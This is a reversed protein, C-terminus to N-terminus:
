VVNGRQACPCPARAVPIGVAVAAVEAERHRAIVPHAATGVAHLQLGVVPVADLIVRDSRGVVNAAHVRELTVFAAAPGVRVAAISKGITHVLRILGVAGM